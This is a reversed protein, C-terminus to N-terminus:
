QNKFSDEAARLLMTSNPYTVVKLAEERSLEPDCLARLLMANAVLVAM